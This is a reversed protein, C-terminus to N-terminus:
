AIPLAFGAKSKVNLLCPKKKMGKNNKRGGYMPTFPTHSENGMASKSEVKTVM